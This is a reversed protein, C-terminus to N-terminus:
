LEVVVPVDGFNQSRVAEILTDLKTNTEATNEEVKKVPDNTDITPKMRASYEELSGAVLAGAFAPGTYLQSKKWEILEEQEKKKDEANKKGFERELKSQLEALRAKESEAKLGEESLEKIRAQAEAIEKQYAAINSISTEYEQVKSQMDTLSDAVMSLPDNLGENALANVMADVQKKAEDYHETVHTKSALEGAERDRDAKTDAMIQLNEALRSRRQTLQIQRELSRFAERNEDTDSAKLRERAEEKKRILDQLVGQSAKAAAKQFELDRALAEGTVGRGAAEERAKALEEKIKTVEDIRSKMSSAQEGSIPITTESLQEQRERLVDELEGQQNLLQVRREEIAVLQEKRISLQNALSLEGISSELLSKGLSEAIEKSRKSQERNLDDLAKTSEEIAKKQKEQLETQEKIRKAVDDASRRYLENMIYLDRTTNGVGLQAVLAERTMSVFSNTAENIIPELERADKLMVSLDVLKFQKAGEIFDNGFEGTFFSGMTTLMQKWNQAVLSIATALLMLPGALKLATGVAAGFRMAAAGAASWAAVSSMNFAALAKSIALFQTSVLKALGVAKSYLFIAPPLFVLLTGLTTLIQVLWSHEKAFESLDASLEKASKKVNNMWEILGLGEVIMKGIEEMVDGIANAMQRKAGAYSLAAQEALSFYNTGIELVKQFKQEKTLNEDLIIGYRALAYTQGRSARTVLLMATSLDMGYAAALGVAAKTAEEIKGAVMGMSKMLAMSSLVQEDAYMTTNQIEGSFRIFQETYRTTEEGGAQLAARMRIIANEQESWAALAQHAMIGLPVSVYLSLDQGFKKLQDNTSDVSKGLNDLQKQAEQMGTKYKDLDAVLQVLLSELVVQEM